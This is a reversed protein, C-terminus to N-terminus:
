IVFARHLTVFSISYLINAVAASIGSGVLCAESIEHELAGIADNKGAVARNNPDFTWSLNSNLTVTIDPNGTSTGLGLAREQPLSLEYEAISNSHGTPNNVPLSAYAILDDPSKQNAILANRIQTYSFSNVFFNNQAATGAALASWAFTINVTVSNTFAHQYFALASNVATMFGAPANNVSPDLTVNFNIPM